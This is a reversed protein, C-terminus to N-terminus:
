RRLADLIRTALDAPVADPDLHRQLALSQYLAIAASAVEQPSRDPSAMPEALPALLARFQRYTDALLQTATPTRLAYLWFEFLLLCWQLDVWDLDPLSAVGDGATGSVLGTLFEAQEDMRKRLVAVFLEDKSAFNSYVAGKSFGAAEAVEDLSAGHFGRAAFVKEAAALLQTRTRERSQSRTLRTM